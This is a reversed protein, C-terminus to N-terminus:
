FLRNYMYRLCEYRTLLFLTYLHLLHQTYLTAFTCLIGQAASRKECILWSNYPEKACFLRYLYLMRHMKAVRYEYRLIACQM